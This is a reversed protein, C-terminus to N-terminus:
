FDIEVDTLPYAVCSHAFGFTEDAKRLKAEAAHFVEGSCVRVRCLSCEGSRCSAEQPMGNDELAELLNRGRPVTIAKRGRVTVTVTGQPDVGEPWRPDDGPQVAVSNDEYRIRRRPHGLSMLEKILFEYKGPPGCLYTMRGALPGVLEAILEANLPTVAGTWDPGPESIVHHVTLGPLRAELADLEDRFIVDDARRSGYVLTIRRALGNDAIDGIMSMAPAVGSGGALFVVDDGHYLPDHFFTGIPGGSTLRDGAKVTDILHNSVRGGPLRRVTLDYYERITPSSSISFARSTAVGDVEVHLNVYQGALFPPMPAGDTRRLRFTKTTVTEDVVEAVTLDLKRPHIPEIEAWADNPHDTGADEARKMGALVEDAGDFLLALPNATM